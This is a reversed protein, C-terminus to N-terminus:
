ASLEQQEHGPVAAAAPRHRDVHERFETPPACCVHYAHGAAAWVADLREHPTGICARCKPTTVARLRAYEPSRPCTRDHRRYAAEQAPLEHGPLVRAVSADDLVITGDPHPRPDVAVRLDGRTLVWLVEAGCGRGCDRVEAM